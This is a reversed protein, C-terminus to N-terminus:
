SSCIDMKSTITPSVTPIVPSANLLDLQINDSLLVREEHVFRGLEVAVTQLITTTATTTFYFAFSILLCPYTVNVFVLAFSVASSVDCSALQTSITFVRKFDNFGNPDWTFSYDIDNWFLREYDGGDCGTGRITVTPCHTPRSVTLITPDCVVGLTLDTANLLQFQARILFEQGEDLCRTDLDHSVRHGSSGGGNTSQTMLSYHSGSAGVNLIEVHMFIKTSYKWYRTDGFEFGGNLIPSQCTQPMPTISINKYFVDMTEHTGYLYTDIRDYTMVKNSVTMIGSLMTWESKLEPAATVIEPFYEEIGLTSETKIQLYSCELEGNSARM